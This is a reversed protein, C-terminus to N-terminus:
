NTVTFIKNSTLTATPTTVQVPGSTAGKPITATIETGSVVTFAAAAGNFTVSTTGTLNNGLIIVSSRAAGSSTVTQVFPALGTSLQFATGYGSSGAYFTTGYFNGDTSQLLPSAGYGDACTTGGSACFDHLVTLEGSTTIEFATGEGGDSSGGWHTTGYLNGDTAQILNFPQYGDACNTQSCFTYLSTFNGALSIKFVTGYSFSTNKSDAGGYITTGYLNGDTAQILSGTPWYGDTCNSEQCFNYLTTLTGQPTIRFITGCGGTAICNVATGGAETTGYFNGDTAQVLGGAPHAGDTTNFNHLVNEAGQLTVIFVTGLDHEGGINTTGYLKGDSGLTLPTYPDDGDQCGLKSCFNYVTSLGSQPNARFVTGGHNDNHYKGDGDRSATGYFNGDGALTLNAYPQYGACGETDCSYGFLTWSGATTLSFVEESTSRPPYQLSGYLNGDLGQALASTPQQGNGEGFDTITTFTTTPTQAAVTLTFVSILVVVLASRPIM